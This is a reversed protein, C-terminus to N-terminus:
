QPKGFQNMKHTLINAQIQLYETATQRHLYIDIDGVFDDSNASPIYPTRGLHLPDDQEPETSIWHQINDADPEINIYSAINDVITQLITEGSNDTPVIIIPNENTYDVSEGDTDRYENVIMFRERAAPTFRARVGIQDPHDPYNLIDVTSLIKATM